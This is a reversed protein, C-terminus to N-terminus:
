AHNPSFRARNETAGCKRPGSGVGGLDVGPAQEVVGHVHGDVLEAGKHPQVIDGPAGDNNKTKYRPACWPLNKKLFVACRPVRTCGSLCGESAARCPRPASRARRLAPPRRLTPRPSVDGPSPATNLLFLQGPCFIGFGKPLGRVFFVGRATRACPIAQFFLISGFLLCLSVNFKVNQSPRARGRSLPKRFRRSFRYPIGFHEDLDTAQRGTEHGDSANAGRTDFKDPTSLSLVM